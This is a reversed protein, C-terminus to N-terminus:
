PQPHLTQPKPNFTYPKPNPNSPRPHLTSPKPNPTHTTGRRADKHHQRAAEVAGGAQHELILPEPHSQQLTACGARPPPLWPSGRGYGGFGDDAKCPRTESAMLHGPLAPSGAIFFSSLVLCSCSSACSSSRAYSSSSSSSASFSSCCFSASASAPPQIPLSAGTRDIFGEGSSAKSLMKNKTHLLISPSIRRQTPGLVSCRRKEHSRVM